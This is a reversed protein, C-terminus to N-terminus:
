PKEVEEKLAESEAKLQEQIAKLKSEPEEVEEKAKGSLAAVDDIVLPTVFVLLESNALTASNHQFLGGILPLDGLLPLKRKIRTDNQFLMGGLIVTEGDKVIMNTASEMKDRIPQSNVFEPTLQSMQLRVTLDVKKEPTISPRVQVVMGVDSYDVGQQAAGSGTITSAGAFPVVQGKFFMAEENDETWLTQQNLIKANTHKILFDILGYVQTTGGSITGSGTAALPSVNTSAAAMSSGQTSLSTVQSLATIANEGVQGFAAPNTALQFGLSTMSSHDVEVIIAKILLQKGPVDLRSITEAIEGQFERPALVLISKTRPDPVFRVRGIVNSIPEVDTQRQVGRTSWPQNYTNANANNPNNPNNNPPNGGGNNGAGSQEMSYSSLGKTMRRIPAPTGEANFTANLRESLDEADAYKLPVVNPVEGMEQRDLDLILQEIVDYAAPIKSIVLIKKTGTVSAFTLQGYLPGIIKKKTDGVDGYYLLRLLSSTSDEQDTFLGTLLKVMAVPDSNRLEIIRPKASAVDLPTDWEDIQKEIKRMNEPSAIVTIQKMTAFSIVKVADAANANRGPGIAYYYYYASSSNSNPINEGYLSDINAKIQDPDAHKLVFHKTEFTGVPMDIQAILMKVMERLDQRGVIMIKRSQSLSKVTVSPRLNEAGPMGALTEEIRRAVEDCNAYQIPVTEYESRIPEERDLKKIWGRVMEIDTPSGRAMICKRRSDPFLILPTQGASAIVPGGSSSAGPTRGATPRNITASGRQGTATDGMLLRLVQTIEGPDGHQIEFVEEVSKGAGPVDLEAITKSISMLSGVTEIILLQGTAEDAGIYGYDASVLPKILEVMQGPAYQTLKFFKRVVQDRNEYMALPEDAGITPIIGLKAEKIPKLYITDDVEEAVFGRLRLASYIKALAKNRPMKDPAYITIKQKMADETPIVTKGTWSAIKDIVNKMEVDKLNVAELQSGGAANPDAPRGQSGADPGEPPRGSRNPGAIGPPRPPRGPRNADRPGNGDSPANADTRAGPKAEGPRNSDAPKNADPPADAGGATAQLAPLASPTYFGVYWVILAALGVVVIWLLVKIREM